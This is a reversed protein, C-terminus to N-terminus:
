KVCSWGALVFAGILVLVATGADCSTHLKALGRTAVTCMLASGVCVYGKHYQTSDLPKNGETHQLGSLASRHRPPLPACKKVTTAPTIGGRTRHEAGTWNMALFAM